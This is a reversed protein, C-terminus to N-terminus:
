AAPVLRTLAAIVRDTADGGRPESLNALLKLTIRMLAPHPLGHRTVLRMVSPHGIAKVFIRGLTFYGGWADRLQQPYAALAQERAADSPRGLAQVIVDAAYEGAEM